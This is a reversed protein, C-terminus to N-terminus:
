AILEVVSAKKGLLHSAWANMLDRRKELMDGRRYAAEVASGVKHALAMEVMDSPFHTLEAAWDRFTSRMGHPVAPAKSVRDIFGHEDDKHIRKMTASLTADSLMGGRVAPFLYPSTSERRLLEAAYTPLPVRHERDMKMRKAPITWLMNELDIEDWTAGRVEGSRSATLALFELARSGNGERQRLETFWRAVESIQIAPHHRTKHVKSPMPLVEKLNGEWAAPNDGERHGMAKSWDLVNAIRSRLRTATDTKTEWIPKLVALIDHMTIEQVVMPGLIPLAHRTMSSEWLNRSRETKYEGLKSKMYAKVAAEFTIRKRDEELQKAVLDRKEQLPDIGKRIQSKFAAAEARAEALGVEPYPGLGMDVRKGTKLTTRLIWSRAGSPRIFMGLGAVGGVMILEASETRGSHKLRKLSLASMEPAIKPM